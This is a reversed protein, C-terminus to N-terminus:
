FPRVVAATALLHALASQRNVGTKAYIHKLHTRVTEPAIGLAKAASGISGSRTTLWAVRAEMPSLRYLARLHQGASIEQREPDSLFIAAAGRRGRDSLSVALTGALPTVLASVPLRRSSRALLLAGGPRGAIASGLLRQFADGLERQRPRITGDTALLVDRAGVIEEAVVNAFLVRAAGDVVLVGSALRDLAGLALRRQEHHGDLLSRLQMARRLHPLLEHSARLEASTFPGRALSRNISMAVRHKRTDDISFWASHGINWPELVEGYFDTGRVRDLPVFSDSAAPSGVPLADMHRRWVNDLHRAFLTQMVAPDLRLSVPLPTPGPAKMLIGLMASQGGILDCLGSLAQPLAESDEVADYIQPILVSSDRRMSPSRGGRTGYYSM